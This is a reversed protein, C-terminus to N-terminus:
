ADLLGDAEELVRNLYRLTVLAAYAHDLASAEPSRERDFADGLTREATAIQSEVADRLALVRAARDPADRAQELEERLELVHLLLAPDARSHEDVIRGGTALLVAARTQPNRLQRFAENVEAAREAAIRKEAPAAQTHGDPHLTRSLDRYRQELQKLDLSFRRPVGLTVFPDSTSM